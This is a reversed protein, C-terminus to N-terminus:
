LSGAFMLSSLTATAATTFGGPAAVSNTAQRSDQPATIPLQRTAIPPQAVSAVATLTAPQAAPILMPADGFVQATEENREGILEVTDGVEIMPYLEELDKKAM